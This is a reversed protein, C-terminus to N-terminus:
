MGYVNIEETKTQGCKRCRYTVEEYPPDFTMAKVFVWDHECPKYKSSLADDQKCREHSLDCLGCPLYYKCEIM